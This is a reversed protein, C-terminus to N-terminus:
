NAQTYTFSGTARSVQIETLLMANDMQMATISRSFIYEGYRTSTHEGIYQGVNNFTDVRPKSETFTSIFDGYNVTQNALDVTASRYEGNYTFEITVNCKNFVPVFGDKSIISHYSTGGAFEGFGNLQVNHYTRLEFYQNWNEPTIEVTIEQPTSSGSNGSSGSNNGSGSNNSSGSNGSIRDIEAKAEDYKGQEMLQLLTDYKSDTDKDSGCACLTLCLAFLLTIAFFRKM